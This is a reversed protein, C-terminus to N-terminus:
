SFGIEVSAFAFNKENPENKGKEVADVMLSMKCQLFTFCARDFYALSSTPLTSIQSRPM